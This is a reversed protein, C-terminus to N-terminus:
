LVTKEMLPLTSVTTDPHSLLVKASRLDIEIADTGITEIIPHELKKRVSNRAM